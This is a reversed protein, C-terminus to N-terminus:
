KRTIEWLEEVLRLDHVPNDRRDSQKAAAEVAAAFQNAEDKSRGARMAKVKLGSTGLRNVWFGAYASLAHASAGLRAYRTGLAVVHDAFRQRGEVPPDRLPGFPWGKWFSVLLWWFLLQIVFPLLNANALSQTPSAAGTAQAAAMTALQVRTPTPLPWGYHGQGLYLLDGIFLENEHLVLSGNWLLQPDAIAVVVGLGVDAVKVVAGSVGGELVVWDTGLGRSFAHSPGDPWRPTALHTAKLEATLEAVFGANLPDYQGLVPFTYTSDGGVVLVGGAEVWIRLADWDETSPQVGSLDLILADTQDDITALPRLRWTVEYGFAQLTDFLGADGNPGYRYQSQALALPSSVFICALLLAVVIREAAGIAGAALTHDLLRGGWRYVEVAWVVEKLSKRTEDDDLSRVYERDTRSRHLRLHGEDALFRLSAGRALLVARGFDGNKLARRAAELQDESPALPVDDEEEVPEDQALRATHQIPRDIRSGFYWIIIRVLVLILAAVLFAAVWRLLTGLASLDIEECKMPKEPPKEPEPALERSPEDSSSPPNCGNNEISPVPEATGACTERMGPCRDVPAEDLLSCWPEVEEAEEGPNHCFGYSQDDLVTMAEDTDGVMTSTCGFCFLFLLVARM